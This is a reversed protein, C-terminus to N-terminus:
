KVVYDDAGANLLAIVSSEANRATAIIVPVTTVARLMRLVDAGDLDPLGLDLIILEPGASSIERLADMATGVATVVHGLDTLAHTLAARVVQDDEVLLVMAM